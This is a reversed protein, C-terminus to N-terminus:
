MMQVDLCMQFIYDLKLSWNLVFKEVWAEQFKLIRTEIDSLKKIIKYYKFM